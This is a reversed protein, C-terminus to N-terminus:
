SLSDSPSHNTKIKRSVSEIPRHRDFWDPKSDGLPTLGIIKKDRIHASCHGLRELGDREGQWIRESTSEGAEKDGRFRSSDGWFCGGCGGIGM